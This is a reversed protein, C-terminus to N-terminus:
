AFHHFCDRNRAETRHCTRDPQGPGTEAFCRPHMQGALIKLAFWWIRGVNLYGQWRMSPAVGGNEPYIKGSIKSGNVGATRTPNNQKEALLGRNATQDGWRDVGLNILLDDSWLCCM